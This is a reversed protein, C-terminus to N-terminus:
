KSPKPKNIAKEKLRLEERKATKDFELKERELRMKENFQRIKENLDNVATSSNDLSEANNNQSEAVLLRTENDRINMENELEMKAQELQLKAQVEENKAALENEAAQNQSQLQETESQEVLRQIEAISASSYMKMIASMRINNTALAREALLDLKEALRQTEPSNDVICGYDSNAFNDGDLEIYKIFGDSLIHQFKKSKGKLAAKATEIFCEIATKKAVDHLM